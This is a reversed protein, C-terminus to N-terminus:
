RLNYIYIYVYMKAVDGEKLLLVAGEEDKLPSFHGCIENCSICTPFAIGKEMKKNKKNGYIKKVEDLILMDGKKCIDPIIAGIICSDKVKGMVLDAIKAAAKYKDLIAPNDTINDNKQEEEDSSHAEEM